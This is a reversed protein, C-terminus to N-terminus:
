LTTACPLRLFMRAIIQSDPREKLAPVIVMTTAIVPITIQSDPLENLAPVIVMTTAIVPITNFSPLENLEPVIVM